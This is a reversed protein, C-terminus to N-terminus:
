RNNGNKNLRTLTLYADFDSESIPHNYTKNFSFGDEGVAVIGYLLNDTEYGYVVYLIYSDGKKLLYEITLDGEYKQIEKQFGKDLLYNENIPTVYKIDVDGLDYLGDKNTKSGDMYKTRDEEKEPVFVIVPSLGFGSECYGKKCFEQNTRVFYCSYIGDDCVPYGSGDSSAYNCVLRTGNNLTVLNGKELKLTNM